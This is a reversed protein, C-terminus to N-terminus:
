AAGGDTPASGSARLDHWALLAYQVAALAAGLVVVYRMPWTPFTFVGEVGLFESNAWARTALPWISDISSMSM